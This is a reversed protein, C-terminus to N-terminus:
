LVSALEAMFARTAAFVAEAEEDTYTEKPHMVENRWALKVSYLNASIRAYPVSLPDPPTLASLQRIKKNAEDLLNQWNKDKGMANVLSVGLKDGFKRVGSEMLRMLHFVCATTRGLALCNGAEAIDGLTNPFKDLVNKSFTQNPEYYRALSPPVFMFLKGSLEDRVRGTLQSSLERVKNAYIAPLFMSPGVTPSDGTQATSLIAHMERASAVTSAMEMSGAESVILALHAMILEYNPQPIIANGIPATQGYVGIDAMAGFFKGGDLRRMIEWLSWLKFPIYM